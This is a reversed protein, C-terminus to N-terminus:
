EKSDKLRGCVNYNSQALYRMNNDEYRRKIELQFTQKANNSAIPFNNTTHDRIKSQIQIQILNFRPELLQNEIRALREYIWRYKNLSQFRMNKQTHHTLSQQASKAPYKFVTLGKKAVMTYCLEKMFLASDEGVVINSGSFAGLCIGVEKSGSPHVPNYFMELPNVGSISLVEKQLNEDQELM